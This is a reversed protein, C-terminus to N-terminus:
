NSNRQELEFKDLVSTGDKYKITNAFDSLAKYSTENQVLRQLQQETQELEQQDGLIKELIAGKQILRRTREKRAQQNIRNTLARKRAKLQDQQTDLKAIREQLKKSKM